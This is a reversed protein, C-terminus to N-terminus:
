SVRDDVFCEWKKVAQLTTAPEHTSEDDDGISFRLFHTIAKCQADTFGYKEAISAPESKRLSKQSEHLLCYEFSDTIGITLTEWNNLGYVLFAPLYYRFGKADLFHPISSGILIDKEPVDQWRQDTDLHRATWQEEASKYDDIAIAEHLTTGDERTVGDFAVLIEEILENRRNDTPQNSM